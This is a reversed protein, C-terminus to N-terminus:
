FKCCRSASVRAREREKERECERERGRGGERGRGRLFGRLVGVTTPNTFIHCFTHPEQQLKMEPETNCSGQQLSTRTAAEDRKCSTAILPYTALRSTTPPPLSPVYRYYTTAILTPLSAVLLSEGDLELV